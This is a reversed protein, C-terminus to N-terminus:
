PSGIRFPASSATASMLALPPTSPRLSSSSDRSLLALGASATRSARSSITFFPTSNRAPVSVEASAGATDVMALSFWMTKTAGDAFVDESVSGLM